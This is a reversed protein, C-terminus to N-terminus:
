LYSQPWARMIADMEGRAQDTLGRQQTVETASRLSADRREQMAQTAVRLRDNAEREQRLDERHREVVAREAARAVEWKKHAAWYKQHCADVSAELDLTEKVLVSLRKGVFQGRTEGAPQPPGQTTAQAVGDSAGGEQQYCSPYPSLIPPEREPTKGRSETGQKTERPTHPPSASGQAEDELSTDSDEGAQELEVFRAEEGGTKSTGASPEKGQCEENEPGQPDQKNATDVPSTTKSSSSSGAARSLNSKKAPPEGDSKKSAVKLAPKAPISSRPTPNQTSRKKVESQSGGKVSSKSSTAKPTAQSMTRLPFLSNVLPPPNKAPAQTSSESPAQSSVSSEKLEGKTLRRLLPKKQLTLGAPAGHMNKWHRTLGDKRTYSARCPSGPCCWRMGCQALHADLDAWSEIEVECSPCTKHQEM